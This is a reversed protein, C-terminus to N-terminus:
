EKYSYQILNALKQLHGCVTSKIRNKPIKKLNTASWLFAFDAVIQWSFAVFPVELSRM